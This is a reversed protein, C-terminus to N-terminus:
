PAPASWSSARCWFFDPDGAPWERGTGSSRGAGTTARVGVRHSAFRPQARRAPSARGGGEQVLIVTSDAGALLEDRIPRVEYRFERNDANAAVTRKTFDKADAEADADHPRDRPSWVHTLPARRHDRRPDGAPVDLPIWVDEPAAAHIREPMVGIVTYPEGDLRMARGLVAPDGALASKWFTYSIVVVHAGRNRNTRNFARGVTPFVRMAPFFSATVKLWTEAAANRWPRGLEHDAQHVLMINAFSHQVRRILDFNPYAEDYHESGRGGDLDLTPM